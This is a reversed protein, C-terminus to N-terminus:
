KEYIYTNQNTGLRNDHLYIFRRGDVDVRVEYTINMGFVFALQVGEATERIIVNYANGYDDAIEYLTPDWSDTILRDFEFQMEQFNELRQIRADQISDNNEIAEVKAPSRIIKIVHDLTTALSVGFLLVLVAGITGLGSVINKGTIKM